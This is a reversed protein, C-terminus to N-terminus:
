VEVETLCEPCRISSIQDSSGDYYLATRINVDRPTYRLISACNNCTAQKFASLDIGVVEVM